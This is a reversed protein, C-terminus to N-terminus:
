QGDVVPALFYLMAETECSNASSESASQPADVQGSRDRIDEDSHSTKESLTM